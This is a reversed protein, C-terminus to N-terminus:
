KGTSVYNILGSRLYRKRATRKSNACPGRRSGRAVAYCGDPYRKHRVKM